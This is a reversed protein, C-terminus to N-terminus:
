RRKSDVMRLSYDDLSCDVGDVWCTQTRKNKGDVDLSCDVGDSRLISGGRLKGVGSESFM